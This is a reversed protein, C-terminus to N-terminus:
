FRIGVGLGGLLGLPPVSAVTAGSALAIPQRFLPMTLLVTASLFVADSLSMSAWISGGVDFWFTSLERADAFGRASARLVGANAEACPAVEVVADIAVRLPCLRLHGATWSLAVSGGRLSREKPLSQRIGVAVSPESVHVGRRM